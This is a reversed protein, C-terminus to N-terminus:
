VGGVRGLSQGARAAVARVVQSPTRRSSERHGHRQSRPGPQWLRLKEGRSGRLVGVRLPLVAQPLLAVDPDQALADRLALTRYATLETMLRDPIPKIGDEQEPEGQPEASGSDVTGVVEDTAANAADSRAQDQTSDSQHSVAPEDEPRVYAREIRVDGSSDISVFVGASAIEEPDYRVPRDDLAALATEIEALRRDVDDPLEDADAHVQKLREYEARLAEASTIEQDAMPIAEGSIHRLGYTHGYPFDTAVELWKWGEARIAKAERELKRRLWGTSCCPIKCGAM